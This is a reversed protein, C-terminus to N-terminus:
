LRAIEVVRVGGDEDTLVETISEGVKCSARNDGVGAMDVKKVNNYLNSEVSGVQGVTKAGQGSRGENQGDEVTRERGSAEFGRRLNGVTDGKGETKPEEYVSATIQHEHRSHRTEPKVKVKPMGTTSQLENRGPHIMEVTNREARPEVSRLPSVTSQQENTGSNRTTVMSIVNRQAQPEVSRSRRKLHEQPSPSSPAPQKNLNEFLAITNRVKKPRNKQTVTAASSKNCTDDSPSVNMEMKAIDEKLEEEDQMTQQLYVDNLKGQLDANYFPPTTIIRKRWTAITEKSKSESSSSGMHSTNNSSREPEVPVTKVAKYNSASSVVSEESVTRSAQKM